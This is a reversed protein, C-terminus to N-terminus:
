LAQDIMRLFCKGYGGAIPRGAIADRYDSISHIGGVPVFPRLKHTEQIVRDIFAFDEPTVPPDFSFPYSYPIIELFRYLIDHGGLGMNGADLCGYIQMRSLPNCQRVLEGAAPGAVCDIIGDLGQGGTAQQVADALDGDETALLAKAGLGVLDIDSRKRRVIPLVNIGKLAAFQLSLISVTSYGATLALWRGPGVGSREVLDWATVLNAFQAALDLAFDRPLAILRSAPVAVFEAWSGLASFTVLTGAPPGSEAPTEVFGAGCIGAVQGPMPRMPGPFEGALFLLDSPNVPALAVRVIAEGPAPEPEAVERLSLM